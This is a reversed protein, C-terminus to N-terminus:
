LSFVQNPFVAKKMRVPFGEMREMKQSGMSVGGCLCHGHADIGMNLAKIKKVQNVKGKTM